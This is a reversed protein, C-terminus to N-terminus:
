WGLVWFAALAALALSILIALWAAFRAGALTEGFGTDMILHKIGAVFHYGLAALCAWAIAKGVQSALMAQANAFGQEGSLSMDLAYLGFGVGVFLAVGTVRHVISALAMVPWKFGLLDAVGVNIPRANKNMHFGEQQLGQPEINAM